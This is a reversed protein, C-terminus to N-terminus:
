RGAFLDYELDMKSFTCKWCSVKMSIKASRRMSDKYVFLCERVRVHM